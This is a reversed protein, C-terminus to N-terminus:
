SGRSPRTAVTSGSGLGLMAEREEIEALLTPPYSFNADM